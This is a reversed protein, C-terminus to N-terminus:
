GFVHSLNIKTHKDDKETQTHKHQKNQRKKTGITNLRTRRCAPLGSVRRWGAVAAAAAALLCVPVCFFFFV